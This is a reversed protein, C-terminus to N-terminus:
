IFFMLFKILFFIIAGVTLIGLWFWFPGNPKDSESCKYRKRIPPM